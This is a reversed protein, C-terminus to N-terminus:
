RLCVSTKVRYSFGLVYLLISEGCRKDVKDQSTQPLTSVKTTTVNIQGPSDM